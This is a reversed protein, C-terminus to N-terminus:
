NGGGTLFSGILNAENQDVYGILHTMAGERNIARWVASGSSGTVAVVRGGFAARRSRALQWLADLTDDVRLLRAPDADVAHHVLAGAAGAQLAASVYDHGDRDSRQSVNFRPGPDGPLAIFLDGEGARRSDIVFGGIDPGESVPLDLAECLAPWTWLPTASM